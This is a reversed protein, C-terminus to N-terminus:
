AMVLVVSAEGGASSEPTVLWSGLFEWDRGLRRFWARAHTPMTAPPKNMTAAIKKEPNKRLELKAPGHFSCMPDPAIAQQLWIFGPSWIIFGSSCMFGPAIIPGPPWIVGPPIIDGPLWMVGPSIIGPPIIPGAACDGVVDGLMGRRYRRSASRLVAGHGDPLDAHHLGIHLLWM